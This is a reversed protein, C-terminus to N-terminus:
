SASGTGIILENGDLDVVEFARMGYAYDSPAMMVKAGRDRLEVHVADVDEVFLCLAGQGALRQTARSAILHLGVEDRCLCVYYTPEGYVFSVEFGLADRYYAFYAVSATLDTVVFVPASGTPMPM